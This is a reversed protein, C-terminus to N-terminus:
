IISCSLSLARLYHSMIICTGFDAIGMIGSTRRCVWLDGVSPRKGNYHSNSFSIGAEDFAPRQLSNGFMHLWMQHSKLILIFCDPYEIDYKFCDIPNVDKSDIPIINRQSIWLFDEFGGSMPVFNPMGPCGQATPM